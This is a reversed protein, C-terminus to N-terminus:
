KLVKQQKLYDKVERRVKDLKYLEKNRQHKKTNFKLHEKNVKRNLEM